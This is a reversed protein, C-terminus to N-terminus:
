AFALGINAVPDHDIENVWYNLHFGLDDEGNLVHALKHLLIISAIM